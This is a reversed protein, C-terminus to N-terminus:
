LFAEQVAFRGQFSLRVAQAIDRVKSLNNFRISEEDATKSRKKLGRTDM